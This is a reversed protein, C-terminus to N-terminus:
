ARVAKGPKAWKATGLESPLRGSEFCLTFTEAMGKVCTLPDQGQGAMEIFEPAIQNIESSKRAAEMCRTQAMATEIHCVPASGNELARVCDDVKRMFDDEPNGYVRRSGDKFSAAFQRNVSDYSVTANEFVYSCLPGLQVGVSHTTIFVIEAGAARCRLVAADYNEIKNSRYLEAQVSEPAASSDPREGLIFLCNHLYHATANNVPSDNVARGDKGAVAGAWSNRQYYSLPRPWLTLSKLVLPKGLAGSAVDAKLNRVADSFSWQYGIALFRGKAKAEAELMAQADALSGAAPKECLVCSGNELAFKSQPEHLQIPTSLITLDPKVSKYLSELDKFLPVGRAKLEPLMRAKEMFPDAAAVFSYRDADLLRKLYNEGYGGVGALAIKVSKSM